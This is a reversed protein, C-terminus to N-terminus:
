FLRYNIPTIADPMPEGKKFFPPIKWWYLQQTVQQNWPAGKPLDPCFAEEKQQEDRSFIVFFAIIFLVAFLFILAQM